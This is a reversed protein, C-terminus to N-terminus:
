ANTGETTESASSPSGSELAALAALCIALPMQGDRPDVAARATRAMDDFEAVFGELTVLLTAMWGLDHMAKVVKWGAAIETSFAPVHSHALTVRNMAENRSLLGNSAAIVSEVSEHNRLSVVCQGGHLACPVVRLGLSSYLATYVAADLAPGAERGPASM